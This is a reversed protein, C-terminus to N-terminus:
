EKPHQKIKDALYAPLSLQGEARMLNVFNEDHFLNKLASVVLLLRNETLRAKKVLLTQRDAEQRYARVLLEATPPRAHHYRVGPTFRKGKAKRQEIVRRIIQLKRGRLSQDEYADCLAQQIGEENSSSIQMAVSLPLRGKDVANLLREEGHDLLHCIGNVYATTMDIKQSIENATYGRNRLSSVERMLEVPSPHRRAINEVISMLYGDQRTVEVIIAPIEEQELARYAELRGQGCVLDYMKGDVSEPKRSVTIPRKLGITSINGVITQFTVTNRSRPNLINIQRVPIMQVKPAVSSV